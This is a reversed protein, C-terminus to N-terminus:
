RVRVVNTKAVKDHLAQKKPDWLPWLGDLIAFLGGLFSILPVLSVLGPGGFQTGWRLLVASIPLEPRERLRVRLGVVLKGPTAQKWMLFGVTYVLNVALNIASVALVAGAIDREFRASSPVPDEDEIATMVADFYDRLADVIDVIFPYALLGGVLLLIVLDILYAGVRRWWGALPAGDPTTPRAPAYAPQQHAPQEYAPQEYAPQEYAPQEYAPQEYAPQALPAVHTTWAQGDWYRQQPSTGPAPQQPDPYWGAPASM